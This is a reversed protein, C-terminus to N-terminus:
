EEEEDMLAVLLEMHATAADKTNDYEAGYAERLTHVLLIWADRGKRRLRVSEVMERNVHVTGDDTTVEIMKAM